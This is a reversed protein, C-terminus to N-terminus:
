DKTYFIIQMNDTNNLEQKKEESIKDAEAKDKEAAIRDAEAKANSIKEAESKAALEKQQVDYM